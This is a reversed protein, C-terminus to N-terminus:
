RLASHSKSSDINFTRCNNPSPNVTTLPNPDDFPWGPVERFSQDLSLNDRAEGKLSVDKSATVINTKMHHLSLVGESVDESVTMHTERKDGPIFTKMQLTIPLFSREGRKFESENRKEESMTVLASEFSCLNSRRMMM